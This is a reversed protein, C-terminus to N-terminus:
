NNFYNKVLDSIYGKERIEIEVIDPKGWGLHEWRALKGRMSLKAAVSGNYLRARELNEVRTGNDNLYTGDPFKIACKM